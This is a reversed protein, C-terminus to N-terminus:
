LIKPVRFYGDKSYKTLGMVTKQPLSPRPIDGHFSNKTHLIHSTPDVNITDLENLKNFYSLIDNLQKLFVKKQEENLELKAL